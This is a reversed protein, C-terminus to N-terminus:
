NKKKWELLSVQNLKPDYYFRKDTNLINWVVVNPHSRFKRELFIASSLDVFNMPDENQKLISYAIDKALRATPYETWVTLGYIGEDIRKFKPNIGLSSRVSEHPTKGMLQCQDILMKTLEKYHLPKGVKLFIEEAVVAVSRKKM